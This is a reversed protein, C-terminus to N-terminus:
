RKPGTAPPAVSTAASPRKRREQSERLVAAPEEFEVEVEGTGRLSVWPNGPVGTPVFLVCDYWEASRWKDPFYPARDYKRLIQQIEEHNSVSADQVLLQLKDPPTGSHAAAYAAIADALIRTDAATRLVMAGYPANRDGCGVSLGTVGPLVLLALAVTLIGIRSGAQM